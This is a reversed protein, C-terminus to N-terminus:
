LTLQKYLANEINKSVCNELVSIVVSVRDELTTLPSVICSGLALEELRRVWSFKFNRLVGKVACRQKAQPVFVNVQVFLKGPVSCNHKQFRKLLWSSLIEKLCVKKQSALGKNETM